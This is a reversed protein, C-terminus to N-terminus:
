EILEEFKKWKSNGDDDDDEEEEEEEEEEEWDHICIEGNGWSQNTSLLDRLDLSLRTRAGLGAALAAALGVALAVRRRGIPGVSAASAVSVLPPPRAASDASGAHSSM